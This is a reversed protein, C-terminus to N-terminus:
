PEEIFQGVMQNLGWILSLMPLEPDSRGCSTTSSMRELSGALDIIRNLHTLLDIHDVRKWFGVKMALCWEKWDWFLGVKTMFRRSSIMWFAKIDKCGLRSESEPTSSSLRSSMGNKLPSMFSSSSSRSSINPSRLMLPM